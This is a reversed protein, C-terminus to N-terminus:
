GELSGGLLVWIQGESGTDAEKVDRGNRSASSSYFVRVGSGVLLRNRM